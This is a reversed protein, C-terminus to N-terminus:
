LCQSQCLIYNALGVTQEVVHVNKGVQHVETSVQPPYQLASSSLKDAAMQKMNIFLSHFCAYMNKATWDIIINSLLFSERSICVIFCLPVLFFQILLMKIAM